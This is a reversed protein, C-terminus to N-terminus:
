PGRKCDEWNDRVPKTTYRDREFGWSAVRIM